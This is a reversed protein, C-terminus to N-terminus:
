FIDGRAKEEYYEELTLNNEYIYKALEEGVYRIHWPEFKMKTIHEKGRPYRLIFGFEHLHKHLWDTKPNTNGHKDLAIGGWRGNLFIDFDMALGTNHESYGAPCSSKDAWEQGGKKIFYQYKINQQEFSLYGSTIDIIIGKQKAFDQFKKFKETTTKELYTQKDEIGFTKFVLDNNKQTEVAVINPKIDNEFTKDDIKHTKNVLMAYDM